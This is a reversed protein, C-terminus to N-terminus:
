DTREHRSMQRCAFNWGFGYVRKQTITNVSLRPCVCKGGGKDSTIVPLMRCHLWRATPKDCSPVKEANKHPFIPLFALIPSSVGRLESVTRRVSFGVLSENSHVTDRYHTGPATSLYRNSRKVKKQPPPILGLRFRKSFRKLYVDLPCPNM